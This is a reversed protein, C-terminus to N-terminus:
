RRGGRRGGKARRKNRSPRSAAARGNAGGTVPRPPTPSPPSATATAASGGPTHPGLRGIVFSQQAMSWINTTTWYILVGLPVSFGFLALMLPMAYLLVKQQSAQQGDTPAAKAMVQKQTIFTTVAMLVLLVVAVAKVAGASGHLSDILHAPSRFSSAIPAEFIKARGASEITHQHLGYAAKFQYAGDVLTPTFSRLVRFLAFFIPLQLLIPLCGSLPNTGHEKYLKMMEQNLTEKDGKHKAQLAKIKPQLTQMARQAKIQKVFLPFLLLRVAATLLVIAVAWSWNPGLFSVLRQLGAISQAILEEFPRLM